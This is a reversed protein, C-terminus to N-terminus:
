DDPEEGLNWEGRRLKAEVDTGLRRIQAVSLTWGRVHRVETVNEGVTDMELQYGEVVTLDHTDLLAVVLLDFDWSRIPSINGPPPTTLARAKM